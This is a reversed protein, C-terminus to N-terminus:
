AIKSPRKLQTEPRGDYEDFDHVFGEVTITDGADINFAWGASTFMKVVEHDATEISVIRTTGGFRNDFSKVFAVTGTVTVGDGPQADLHKWEAVPEAPQAPEATAAARQVAEARAQAERKDRARELRTLHKDFQEVTDFTKGKWGLGECPFCDEAVATADTYISAPLRKWFIGTGGCKDCGRAFTGAHTVHAKRNQPTTITNMGYSYCLLVCRVVVSALIKRTTGFFNSVRGCTDNLHRM